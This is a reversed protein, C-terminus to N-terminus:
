GSTVCGQRNVAVVRTSSKRIAARFAETMKKKDSVRVKTENTSTTASAQRQNKM